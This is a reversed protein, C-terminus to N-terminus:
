RGFSRCRRSPQRLYRHRPLRRRPRTRNGPSTRRPQPSRKARTPKRPRLNGITAPLCDISDLADAADADADAALTDAIGFRQGAPLLETRLLGSTVLKPSNSAVWEHMAATETEAEVTILKVVASTDLYWAVLSYHEDNRLEDFAESLGPGDTINDTPLSLEAPRVIAQRILGANRMETLRSARLPVIRVVPKGCDTITMVPGAAAQRVVESANQKLARIGVTTIHQV